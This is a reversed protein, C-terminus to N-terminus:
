MCFSGDDHMGPSRKSTPFPEMVMAPVGQMQQMQMPMCVQMVNGFVQGPMQMTMPQMNMMMQPQGGMQMVQVQYFQFNENASGCSVCFSTAGCTLCSCCPHHQNNNCYGQSVQNIAGTAAEEKAEVESYDSDELPIKTTSGATSAGSEDGLSLKALAEAIQATAEAKAMEQVEMEPNAEYAELVRLASSVAFEFGLITARASNSEFNITVCEQQAIMQIKEGTLHNEDFEVRTELCMQQFEDLLQSAAAVAAKPGFLRVEKSTREIHVRCNSLQQIRQVVSSSADESMRTRMLETWAATPIQKRPGGLCELQRQVDAVQAESGCVRLVGQQRDFKLHARSSLQIEKLRRRGRRCFSAHLEPDLHIEVMNGHSVDGWYRSNTMTSM